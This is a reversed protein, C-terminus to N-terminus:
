TNAHYTQCIADFSQRDELIESLPKESDQMNEIFHVLSDNFQQEADSRQQTTAYTGPRDCINKKTMLKCAVRIFAMNTAHHRFLAICPALQIKIAQTNSQQHATVIDHIQLVFKKMAAEGVIDCMILYLIEYTEQMVALIQQSIQYEQRIKEYYLKQWENTYNVIWQVVTSAEQSELISVKHKELQIRIQELLLRRIDQTKILKSKTANRTWVHMSINGLTDHTDLGAGSAIALATDMDVYRLFDQLTIAEPITCSTVANQWATNSSTDSCDLLKENSSRINLLFTFLERNAISYQEWIDSRQKASPLVNLQFCVTNLQLIKAALKCLPNYLEAHKFAIRTITKCVFFPKLRQDINTYHAATKDAVNKKWTIFEDIGFIDIMHLELWSYAEHMAAQLSYAIDYQKEKIKEDEKEWEQSFDCIWKVLVQSDTLENILTQRSEIHTQMQEMLLTRLDATRLLRDTNQESSSPRLMWVSQLVNGLSDHTPLNALRAIYLAVEQDEINRTM